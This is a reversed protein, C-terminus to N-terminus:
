LLSKILIKVMVHIILYLLLTTNEILTFNVPKIWFDYNM